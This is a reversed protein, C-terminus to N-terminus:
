IFLSIGEGAGTEGVNRPSLIMPQPFDSKIEERNEGGNGNGNGAFNGGGFRHGHGEHNGQLLVDFGDVKLGQGQLAYKLQDSHAKLAQQVEQNSAIMVVEVKNNRVLVDMDVTGLHPPNLTIKIRGPGNQSFQGAIQDILIEPRLGPVTESIVDKVVGGVAYPNGQDIKGAAAGDMATGKQGSSSVIKVNGEEKRVRKGASDIRPIDRDNKGATVEEDFLLQDWEERGSGAEVAQEKFLRQKLRNRAVETEKGASRARKETQAFEEGPSNGKGAATEALPLAFKMSPPEKGALEAFGERVPLVGAQKTAAEEAGAGRSEFDNANASSAHMDGSNHGNGKQVAEGAAMNAQGEGWKAGESLASVNAAARHLVNKEGNGDMALATESINKLGSQREEPKQMSLHPFRGNELGALVRQIKEEPFGYGRLVAAINEKIGNGELTVASQFLGNELEKGIEETQEDSLGLGKLLSRINIKGSGDVPVGGESFIKIWKNGMTGSIDGTLVADGTVPVLNGTEGESSTCSVASMNQKLMWSFASAGAMDALSLKKKGPGKGRQNEQVDLLGAAVDTNKSPVGTESINSIIPEM